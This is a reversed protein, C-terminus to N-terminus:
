PLIIFKTFVKAGGTWDAYVLFYSNTFEVLHYKLPNYQYNMFNFVVGTKDAVVSFPKVITANTNGEIQHANQTISVQGTTFNFVNVDDKIWLSVYKWLDTESQVEADDTIYDIPKDSYYGDNASIQFSKTEIFAKFENAKAIDEPSAGEDKKSCASISLIFLAAVLWTSLQKM